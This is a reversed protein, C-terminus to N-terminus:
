LVGLCSAANIAQKLNSAGLKCRANDHHFKVSRPSLELLRTIEKVSLGQASFM